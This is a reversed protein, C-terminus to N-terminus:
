RAAVGFTEDSTRQKASFGALTEVGVVVDGVEDGLPFRLFRILGLAIVVVAFWKRSIHALALIVRNVVRVGVVGLHWVLCDHTVDEVVRLRPVDHEVAETSGAHRSHGRLNGIPL